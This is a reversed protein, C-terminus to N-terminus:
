IVFPRKRCHGNYFATRTHFPYIIYHYINLFFFFLYIRIWSMSNVRETSTFGSFSGCFSNCMTLSNLLSCNYLALSSSSCFSVRTIIKEGHILVFILASEAPLFTNNTQLCRIPYFQHHLLCVLLLLLWSCYLVFFWRKPLIEFQLYFTVDLDFDASPLRCLLDGYCMSLSLTCFFFSIIKQSSAPISVAFFNGLARQSRLIPSSARSADHALHPPDVGQFQSRGRQPVHHIGGQSPCQPPSLSFFFTSLSLSVLIM